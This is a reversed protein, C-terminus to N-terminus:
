VNNVSLLLLIWRSYLISTFLTCALGVTALGLLYCAGVNVIDRGIEFTSKKIDRLILRLSSDALSLVMMYMMRVTKLAIRFAKGSAATTEESMLLERDGMMHAVSFRGSVISVRAILLYIWLTTIIKWPISWMVTAGFIFIKDWAWRRFTAFFCGRKDKVLATKPFDRNTITPM